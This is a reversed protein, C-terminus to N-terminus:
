SQESKERAEKRAVRDDELIINDAEMQRRAASDERRMRARYLFIWVVGVLILVAFIALPVM